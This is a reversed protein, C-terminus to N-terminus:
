RAPNLPNDHKAHHRFKIPSPNSRCTQILEPTRGLFWYMLCLALDSLVNLLRIYQRLNTSIALICGRFGAAFNCVLVWRRRDRDLSLLGGCRRYYPANTLRRRKCYLLMKLVYRRCDPALFLLYRRCYLAIIPVCHRYYPAITSLFRSCDTRITVYMYM